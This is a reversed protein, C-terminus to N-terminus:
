EVDAAVRRDQGHQREQEHGERQQGRQRAGQIEQAEAHIRRRGAADVHRTDLPDREDRRRERGPRRNREAARDTKDADDHRVHDPQHDSGIM